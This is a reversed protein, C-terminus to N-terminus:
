EMRTHSEAFRKFGTMDKLSARRFMGPMILALFRLFGTCHFESDFEWLTDDPGAETFRYIVRNWAGKAEYTCIMEDPLKNSEVTEIMEIDRRGFVHRLKTRAGDEGPIGSIPAFSILSEQWKVWNKPDAFLEVVQARPLAIDMRLTYRLPNKYM